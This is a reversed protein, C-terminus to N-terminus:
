NSPPVRKSLKGALGKYDGGAEHGVADVLRQWTAIEQCNTLWDTLMRGERQTASLAREPVLRIAELDRVKAGLVVGMQYWRAAVEGDLMKQIGSVAETKNRYSAGLHTNHMSAYFYLCVCPRIQTYMPSNSVQVTKFGDQKEM